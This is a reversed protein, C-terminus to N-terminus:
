VAHSKQKEAVPWEDPIDDAFHTNWVDEEDKATEWVRRWFATGLTRTLTPDSLNWTIGGRLSKPIAFIRATMRSTPLEPWKLQVPSGPPCAIGAAELLHYIGRKANAAPIELYAAAVEGSLGGLLRVLRLARSHHVANKVARWLRLRQDATWTTPVLPIGASTGDTTEAACSVPPPDYPAVAPLRLLIQLFDLVAAADRERGAPRLAAVAAGNGWRWAVRELTGWLYEWEESLILEYSWFLIKQKRLPDKASVAAASLAKGVADRDYWHRTIM